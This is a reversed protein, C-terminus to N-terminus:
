PVQQEGTSDGSPHNLNSEAGEEQAPVLITAGCTCSMWVADDGHLGSTLAGCRRHTLYFRDLEEGLKSVAHSAIPDLQEQKWLADCATHVRVV